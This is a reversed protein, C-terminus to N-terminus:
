NNSSEDEEEMKAGCNPCYKWGPADGTKQKVPTGCIGCYKAIVPEVPKQEKLLELADKM